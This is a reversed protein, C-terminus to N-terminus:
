PLVLIHLSATSHSPSNTTPYIRDKRKNREKPSNEWPRPTITDSLLFGPENSCADAFAGKHVGVGTEHPEDPEDVQNHRSPRDNRKDECPSLLIPSELSTPRRLPQRVLHFLGALLEHRVRALRAKHYPENRNHNHLKQPMQTLIEETEGRPLSAGPYGLNASQAQIESPQM